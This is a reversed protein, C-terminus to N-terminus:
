ACLGGLFLPGKFFFVCHMSVKGMKQCAELLALNFHLLPFRSDALMCAVHCRELVRWLQRWVQEFPSFPPPPLDSAARIRTVRCREM